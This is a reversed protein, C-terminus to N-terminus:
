GQEKDESLAPLIPLEVIERGFKDEEQWQKALTETEFVASPESYGEYGYDIYGVWVKREEVKGM